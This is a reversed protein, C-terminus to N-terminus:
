ANKFLRNDIELATDDDDGVVSIKEIADTRMNKCEFSISLCEELWASSSVVSLFKRFAFGGTTGGFLSGDLLLFGRFFRRFLRRGSLKLICFLPLQIGYLVCDGGCFFTNRFDFGDEGLWVEM